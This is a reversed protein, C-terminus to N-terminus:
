PTAGASPASRPGRTRPAASGASPPPAGAGPPAASGSDDPVAAAGASPPAAAAGAEASRNISAPSAPAAKVKAGESLAEAGLVVLKDGAVLGSRVEIWGDKTNMGLTLVREHAVDGEVVYSVYGHDTARAAARPIMPAERTAGLNMSVDCFSGPRLWYKHGEDAIEATVGIMHTVADASGAVLTVKANFTRQTERLTFTAIAGSKIRPAEPPEVQFRLLMPDNRLLTAMVYGAQVYQGTEVTRTQIIGEMPARIASDRLNLQATRMAAVAVQRDATATLSKSRYTDLEEGPILGPNKDSAGERRAVMAQNDKLAADAKDVAAQASSVLLRFRESDIVVLTDGKKVQQGESFAVRDVVGAVRATVQVREFADITGPSTVVYDVKKAEVPMVEVAFALGAGGKGGRGGRGPAGSAAGAAPDTTAKGKCAAGLPLLLALLVLARKM